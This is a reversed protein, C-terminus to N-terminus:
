ANLFFSIKASKSARSKSCLVLACSSLDVRFALGSIITWSCASITLHIELFLQDILARSIHLILEIAAKTCPVDMARCSSFLKPKTM